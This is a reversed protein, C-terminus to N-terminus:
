VVGSFIVPWLLTADWTTEYRIKRNIGSRGLSSNECQGRMTPSGRGLRRPGLTRRTGPITHTRQAKEHLTRRIERSGLPVRLVDAILGYRFLAVGKRLEEDPPNM